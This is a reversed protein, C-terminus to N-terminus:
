GVFFVLNKSPQSLYIPNRAIETTLPSQVLLSAAAFGIFLGIVINYANVRRLLTIEMTLNALVCFFNVSKLSPLCTDSMFTHKNIHNCHLTFKSLFYKTLLNLM